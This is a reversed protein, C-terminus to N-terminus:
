SDIILNISKATSQIWYIAEEVSHVVFYYGGFMKIMTEFAKQNDQQVARGTKVEVEIRRGGRMIGTIDASGKLGYHILHSGRYAAGTEQKWFRGM